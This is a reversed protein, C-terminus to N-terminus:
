LRFEVMSFDDEFTGGGQQRRSEEQLQDLLVGGSVPEPVLLREFEDYEWMSGDPRKIEYVGDSFLYLRAGVPVHESASRYKVGPMSGIVMGPVQLRTVTGDPAVLVAPPHGGRAFAMQRTEKDFVGYWITFYMNNHRDMQFSENLGCLVQGPDKFDVGALSNSRLVNMASISLLAAGVGHGCVDLLYLAFHREDLWHYGFSDGGLSTSPIFRWDVSVAGTLREPLLSQVYSSAEALEAALQSQSEQLALFTSREKERLRQKELSSHIRAQLLVAKFPKPLYDEAGLDICRAVSDLDDLGAIMIVPLERLSPDTKMAKLVAYGDLGPMLTDLLVLDFIEKHLRDLASAGDPAVEVIYGLGS